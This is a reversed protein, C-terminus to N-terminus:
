YVTRALGAAGRHSSSPASASPSVGPPPSSGAVPSPSVHVVGSASVTPLASRGTDGPQAASTAGATPGSTAAAGGLASGRGLANLRGHHTAAGGTLALATIVAVAAVAAVGAAAAQRPRSRWGKARPADIPQPFGHSGFPATRQAVSARHAVAEPTASSALRLVQARLGSPMAAIPLAALPALGLMLAPALERRKRETCVPCREIHRNLRKRM